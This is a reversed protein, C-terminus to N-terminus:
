STVCLFLARDSTNKPIALRHDAQLITDVTKNLLFSHWSSYPFRRCSRKNSLHSNESNSGLLWFRHASPCKKYAATHLFFICIYWVDRIALSSDSTDAM